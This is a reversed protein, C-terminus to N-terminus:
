TNIRKPKGRGCRQLHKNSPKRVSICELQLVHCKFHKDHGPINTLVSSQNEAAQKFRKTDCFHSTHLDECKAKDAKTEKIVAKSIVM